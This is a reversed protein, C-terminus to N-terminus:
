AARSEPTSSKLLRLLEETEKQVQLVAEMKVPGYGRIDMPAAAIKELQEIMIPSIWPTLEAVLEEYWDILGREVQREHTYGFVDFATGRLFKLRALIRFPTQIWQGFQRKLPRGRADKGFSLMPPALHYNVTFDGEFEQRLKDQFGTEMHLRAVEYEDKYAM